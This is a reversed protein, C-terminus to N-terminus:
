SQLWAMVENVESFDSDSYNNLGLLRGNYYRENFLPNTENVNLQLKPYYPSVAKITEGLTLIGNNFLNLIAGVEVDKKDSFIPTEIDVVGNYKFYKKNFKNIEIEFPLQENEM